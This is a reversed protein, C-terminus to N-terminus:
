PRLILVRERNANTLRNIFVVAKVILLSMFKRCNHRPNKLLNYAEDKKFPLTENKVIDRFFNNGGFPILFIATFLALPSAGRIKRIGSLNLMTGIKFGGMFTSIINQLHNAEQQNEIEKTLEM